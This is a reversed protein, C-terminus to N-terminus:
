RPPPAFRGEDPFPSATDRRRLEDLTWPDGREAFFALGIVGVNRDEGRAAAYSDRVKAFRFAAVEDRSQRFGDIELTSWPSLVYGRNEFSGTRGSIVDLGDVTAVTEFRAPTHNEILISYRRGEHGVVYIRGGASVAELPEGDASRLSFTIAGRAAPVDYFRSAGRYGAQAEVGERDNYFVQSVAFPRQPDARLFSVENTPSDRREGWETGLGPREAPSPEPVRRTSEASVDASAGPYGPEAAPAASPAYGAPPSAHASMPHPRAEWNSPSKAIEADGGRGGCGAMGVVGAAGLLAVASRLSRMNQNVNM